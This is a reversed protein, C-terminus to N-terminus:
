VESKDTFDLDLRSITLILLIIGVAIVSWLTEYGGLQLLCGCFAAGLGGGGFLGLGILASPLGKTEPAVDFAITALPSQILIYGFGLTITAVLVAQWFPFFMLLLASILTSGAGVSVVMHQGFREGLKGVRLGAILCAFGYFMVVLGVQLYNLAFVEHLFAGLYSYLGLVLFGTAFALPFIIKGKSTSVVQKVEHFFKRHAM